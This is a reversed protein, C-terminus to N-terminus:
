QKSGRCSPETQGAPRLESLGKLSIGPQRDQKDQPAGCSLLDELKIDSQIDFGASRIMQLTANPAAGRVNLYGTLFLSNAPYLALPELEKLYLERGAAVRLDVSPNLLRFLALVRLCYEPTLHAPADLRTGAVPIFFNVPISDAGLAALTQAVEIIDRSSEGMGVIIGSCIQLGVSQATRITALRDEYTHTSCIRPYFNRSTNLNHNIRDVGAAKLIEAQERDLLGPSVCVEMPHYRRKMERVLEALREIRKLSPTRGSFVLCHRFAGSDYAQAAEALIEEDSKLGYSEIPVSAERSQACYRCDEPCAGNQVNDIIHILVKKGYFTHRLQYAADLLALLRIDPSELISFCQAESLPEKNLGASVLQSYFSDEV